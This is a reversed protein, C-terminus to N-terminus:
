SGHMLQAVCKRSRLTSFRGHGQMQWYSGTRPRCCGVWGAGPGLCDPDLHEHAARRVAAIVAHGDSSGCHDTVLQGVADAHPGDTLEVDVVEQGDRGGGADDDDIGRTAEARSCITSRARVPSMPRGQAAAGATTGRPRGAPPPRAPRASGPDARERGSRPWRRRRTRDPCHRSGARRPPWAPAPKPWGRLWRLSGCSAEERAPARVSIHMANGPRTTAMSATPATTSVSPRRRRADVSNSVSTATPSQTVPQRRCSRRVGRVLGPQVFELRAERQSRGPTPRGILPRPWLGPLLLGRHERTRISQRLGRDGDGTSDAPADDERNTGRQDAAQGDVEVCKRDLLQRVGGDVRGQLVRDGREDQDRDGQSEPGGAVDPRDVTPVPRGDERNAHDTAAHREDEEEGTQGLGACGLAAKM